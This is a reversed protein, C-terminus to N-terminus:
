LRCDEPLEGLSPYSTQTGKRTVSISAVRVALEVCSRLDRGGKALAAALTGVFADGAGVTDIADVQPAAVISASAAGDQLLMAGRSGLTIVVNRAGRDRLSRAAAAASEDSDVRLGSILEAETENPCFVDSLRCDLFLTLL